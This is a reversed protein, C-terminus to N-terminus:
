RSVIPADTTDVYAAPGTGPNVQFGSVLLGSKGDGAYSPAGDDALLTFDMVGRETAYPMVAWVRYWGGSMAIIGSDAVDGSRVLNGRKLDFRAVGYRKTKDNDRLELLIGSREVPKVFLSTTYVADPRLGDVLIEVRHLGSGAGETLRSVTKIGAPANDDKAPVVTADDPRYRLNTLDESPWALNEAPGAPQSAQPGTTSAASASQSQAAVVEPQAPASSAQPSAATAIMAGRSIYAGGILGVLLVAAIITRHEFRM